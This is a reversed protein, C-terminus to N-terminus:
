KEKSVEEEMIQEKRKYSRYMLYMYLITIGLATYWGLQVFYFFFFFCGIALLLFIGINKINTNM